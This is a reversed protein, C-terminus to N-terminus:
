YKLRYNNLLIVMSTMILSNESLSDIPRGFLNNYNFNNKFTLKRLNKSLKMHIMQEIKIIFFLNILYLNM